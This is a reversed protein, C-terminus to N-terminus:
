PHRASINASSPPPQRPDITQGGVLHDARATAGNCIQVAAFLFADAFIPAYFLHSAVTIRFFLHAAIPAITSAAAAMDPKLAGACAWSVSLIPQAIEL